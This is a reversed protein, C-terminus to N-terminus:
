NNEYYKMILSILFIIAFWMLHQYNSITNTLLLIIGFLLTIGSSAVLATSFKFRFVEQEAMLIILLFLFMVLMMGLGFYGDTLINANSVLNPVIESTNNILSNNIELPTINNLNSINM